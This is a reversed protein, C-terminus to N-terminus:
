IGGRTLFHEWEAADTAYVTTLLVNNQFAVGAIAANLFQLARLGPHRWRVGVNGPAIQGAPLGGAGDSRRSIRGPAGPYSAATWVDEMVGTFRNRRRVKKRAGLQAAKRFILVQTRGDQTTRTRIKPNKARLSGDADAVWMPITKGALSRMTRPGTGHEMFWTWPDPFYIGFWGDTWLPALRAATAGSVRPMTQRATYVADTALYRTELESAGEARMVLRDPVGAGLRLIPALIDPM